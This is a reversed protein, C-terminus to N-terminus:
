VLLPNVSSFGIIFSVTDIGSGGVRIGRDEVVRSNEFYTKKKIKNKKM